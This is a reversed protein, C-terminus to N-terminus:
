SGDSFGVAPGLEYGVDLGLRKGVTTGEWFGM